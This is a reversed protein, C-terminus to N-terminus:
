NRRTSVSTTRGPPISSCWRLTRSGFTRTTAMTERLSKVLAGIEEKLNTQDMQFEEKVNTIRM